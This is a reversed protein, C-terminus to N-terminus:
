RAKRLFTKKEGPTMDRATVIFAEGSDDAAVVFLYRGSYTRGYILITDDKGEVQWFPRELIAERVEDLTVGHRAIHDASWRSDKVERFM